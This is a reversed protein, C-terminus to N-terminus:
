RQAAGSLRCGQLPRASSPLLLAVRNLASPLPHHLASYHPLRAERSANWVVLVNAHVSQRM